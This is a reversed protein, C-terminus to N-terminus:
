RQMWLFGLLRNNKWHVISELVLAGMIVFIQVYGYWPTMFTASSHM